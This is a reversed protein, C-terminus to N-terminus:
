FSVLYPQMSRCLLEKEDSENLVCEAIFKVMFFGKLM